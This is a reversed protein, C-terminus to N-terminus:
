KDSQLGPRKRPVKAWVKHDLLVAEVHSGLGSDVISEVFLDLYRKKSDKDIDLMHDDEEIFWCRPRQLELYTMFDGMVVSWGPHQRTSKTRDTVNNRRRMPSYLQCLLGGGGIDPRSGAVLTVKRKATSCYGSGKAQDALSKFIVEPVKGIGDYMHTIFRIACPKPESASRVKWNAGFFKYLSNETAVGACTFDVLIQRTQAVPLAM